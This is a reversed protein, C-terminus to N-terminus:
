DSRVDGEVHLEVQWIVTLLYKPFRSKSRTELVGGVRRRRRMWMSRQADRAAASSQACREDKRLAKSEYFVKASDEEVKARGEERRRREKTEGKEYARGDGEPVLDKGKTDRWGGDGLAGM